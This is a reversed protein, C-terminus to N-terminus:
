RRADETTSIIFVMGWMIPCEYIEMPDYKKIFLSLNKLSQM